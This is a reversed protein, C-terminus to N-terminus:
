RTGNIIRRLHRTGFAPLSHRTLADRLAQLDGDYEIALARIRADREDRREQQQYAPKGNRPVLGLARDLREGDLASEIGQRLWEALDDPWQGSDLAVLVRRLQNLPTANRM